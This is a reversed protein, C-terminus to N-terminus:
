FTLSINKEVFNIWNWFNDSLKTVASTSQNWTVTHTHRAFLAALGERRNGPPILPSMRLLLHQYILLSKILKKTLIIQLFLSQNRKPSQNTRATGYLLIALPALLSAFSDCLLISIIELRVVKVSSELFIKSRGNWETRIALTSIRSLM